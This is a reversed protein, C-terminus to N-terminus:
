VDDVYDTRCVASYSCTECLYVDHPRPPFEGRAIGDVADVLRTRAESLVKERDSATFL